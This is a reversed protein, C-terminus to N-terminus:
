ALAEAPEPMPFAARLRTGQGPASEISLTGGICEFRFRMGALGHVGSRVVAPDFGKGDDQVEVVVQRDDHSLRLQVAHADAYKSINTLAEQVLRFISLEAAPPLQVECLDLDIPIELRARVEDCLISLAPTLGLQTLSSPTLDEIIRRKLAIGENLRKALEDMRHLAAPDDPLKMRLRALDLKAATLLSGLEDHLERALRAKEDESATQLYGALERLDRTRQSVEAELHEQRGQQELDSHRLQKLYFFMGILGILTMVNVTLFNLRLGDYISVRAQGQLSAAEKLREAFLARLADMRSRGEGSIAIDMAGAQDGEKVLGITRTMELLRADINESFASLAAPAGEGSMRLFKVADERAIPLEALAANYPELYENRGSLLFGRQATEIDTMLQLIRAMAIRGDTLSIGGALVQTTGRYTQVNVALICIAGFLIVPFALPLRILRAFLPRLM